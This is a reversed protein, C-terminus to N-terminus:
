TLAEAFHDCLVDVDFFVPIENDHACQVEEDAGRSVGPLRLVADCKKVLPIDVEMWIAHPIVADPDCLFTYHPVIISFGMVVLQRGVEIARMMNALPDGSSTLPSSVYIIKRDM